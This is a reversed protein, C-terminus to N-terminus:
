RLLLGIVIFKVIVLQPEAQWWEEDSKEKRSRCASRLSSYTFSSKGRPIGRSLPGAVTASESFSSGQFIKVAREPFTQWPAGDRDVPKLIVVNFLNPFDNNFM